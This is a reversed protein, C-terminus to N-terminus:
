TEGKEFLELQRSKIGTKELYIQALIEGAKDLLHAAMDVHEPRISLGKKTPFWHGTDGDMMYERIHVYEQGRFENITVKIAKDESLYCVYGLDIEM